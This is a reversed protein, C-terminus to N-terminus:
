HVRKAADHERRYRQVLKRIAEFEEDPIWLGSKTLGTARYQATLDDAAMPQGNALVSYLDYGSLVSLKGDPRCCVVFQVGDRPAELWVRPVRFIIEVDEGDDEIISRDAYFIAFRPAM